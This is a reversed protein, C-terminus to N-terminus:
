VTGRSYNHEGNRVKAWDDRIATMFADDWSVYKYGKARAQTCFNELHRDLSKYGKKAAWEQVRDSVSFNTPLGTKSKAKKPIHKDERRKDERPSADLTVSADRKRARMESNRKATLARKKATEGNHRGFNPVMIRGDKEILWGVKIVGSAFGHCGVLRDLTVVTVSPADGNETHADFWVWMRFLKGFAADPDIDLEAALQWIEPKDPTCTEIKIWSM